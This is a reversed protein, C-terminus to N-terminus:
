EMEFESYEIPHDTFLRQMNLESSEEDPGFAITLDEKKKSNMIKGISAINNSFGRINLIESSLKKNTVPVIPPFGGIPVFSM